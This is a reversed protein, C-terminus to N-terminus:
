NYQVFSDTWFLRYYCILSMSEFWILMWYLRYWIFIWYILESIHSCLFCTNVSYCIGIWQYQCSQNWSYLSSKWCITYDGHESTKTQSMVSQLISFQYYTFTCMWNNPASPLNQSYCPGSFALFGLQSCPVMCNPSPKMIFVNNASSQFMAYKMIIQM